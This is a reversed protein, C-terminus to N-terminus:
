LRFWKPATQGKAVTSSALIGSSQSNFQRLNTNVPFALFWFARVPIAQTPPLNSQNPTDLLGDCVRKKWILLLHNPPPPPVVIVWGGIIASGSNRTTMLTVIVWLLVARQLFWCFNTAQKSPFGMIDWFCSSELFWVKEVERSSKKCLQHLVRVRTRGLFTERAILFAENISALPLRTRLTFFFLAFSSWQSRPTEAAIKGGPCAISICVVAHTAGGCSSPPWSVREM